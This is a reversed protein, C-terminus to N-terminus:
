SCKMKQCILIKNSSLFYDKNLSDSHISLYMISITSIEILIIFGSVASSIINFKKEKKLPRIIFLLVSNFINKVSFLNLEM